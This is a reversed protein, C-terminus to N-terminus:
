KNEEKLWNLRKNLRIAFEKGIYSESFSAKKSIGLLCMIEIEKIAIPKSVKLHKEIMTTTVLDNNVLLNLIKTRHKDASNLAVEKVVWIDDTTIYNRNNTVAHGRALNYLTQNARFPAEITPGDNSIYTNTTNPDKEYWISVTGRLKSLLKSYRAISYLAENRDKEKNWVIGNSHKDWLTHIFDETVVRCTDEKQKFPSSSLNNVLEDDSIKKSKLNYFYLRAGLTSMIEWVRKKIPTTAGLFVFMYEGSYGRRGHVGSDVYLGEGDFVRTLIGLSETLDDERKSFLTALDRVIFAKNKIRPLLDVSSLEEKKINASSSVFSAPTFKDSVYSIEEINSFFNLTITKGASPKGVIVLGFPNTIDLVLLQSIISLIIKSSVLLDPFNKNITQEWEILTTEKYDGVIKAIRSTAKSYEKAHKNLLDKADLNYKVLYDTIDEHNEFYNPLEILFVQKDQYKEVIKDALLNTSNKGTEDKDFCIYIKSFSKLKDIWSDKFTGAGATSTITNIGKDNLLICDFEGEVVVVYDKSKDFYPYVEAQSGKPYSIYKISGKNTFPCKRLKFFSYNGMENKIPISIWNQKYYSAYGLKYKDILHNTIGRDNLYSKINGPIKSHHREVAKEITTKQEFFDTTKLGQHKYLTYLNGSENCKKCHYQGTEKSIYLHGEKGKSDSDCKDFVCHTIYETDNTNVVHLGSSDVLTNIQTTTLQKLKM